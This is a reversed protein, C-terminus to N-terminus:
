GNHSQVKIVIYILIIIIITLGAIHIVRNTKVEKKQLDNQELLIKMKGELLENNKTEKLDQESLHKLISLSFNNLAKKLQDHNNTLNEEVTGLSEIIQKQIEILSDHNNKLIEQITGLLDIIQKQIEILNDNVINLNSISTTILEEVKEFSETFNM